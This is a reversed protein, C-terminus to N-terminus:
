LVKIAAVVIEGFEPYTTSGTVTCRQGDVLLHAKDTLVTGSNLIDTCLLLHAEAVMGGERGRRDKEDRWTWDGKLATTGTSLTPADYYDAGKVETITEVTFTKTWALTRAKKAAAQQANTLM